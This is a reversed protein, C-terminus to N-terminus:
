TGMVPVYYLKGPVFHPSLINYYRGQATFRIRSSANIGSRHILNLGLFVVDGCVVDPAVHEYANVIDDSIRHTESGHDADRKYRVYDKIRGIQQSAPCLMVSGNGPHVHMLPIWATLGDCGEEDAVEGDFIVDQHWDLNNRTDHPPDMRCLFNGVTMQDRNVTLLQGCASLLEDQTTLRHMSAMSQMVDYIVGFMKPNANRLNLMEQHALPNEFFGREDIRAFHDGGFRVFLHRASAVVNQILDRDILDRRVLYGNNAFFSIEEPSLPGAQQPQESVVSISQRAGINMM